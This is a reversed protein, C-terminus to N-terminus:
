RFKIECMLLLYYVSIVFFPVYLKLISFYATKKRKKLTYIYVHMHAYM